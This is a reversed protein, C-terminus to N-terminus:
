SISIGHRRHNMMVTAIEGRFEITLIKFFNTGIHAADPDTVRNKLIISTSILIM